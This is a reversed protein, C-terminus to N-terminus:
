MSDTRDYQRQRIPIKVTFVAGGWESTGADLSGGHDTIIRHCISLGIGSSNDKTTYFPDFINAMIQEAIGPGSDSVTICISDGAPRTTIKIKKEATMSAMAESANAILNLIVQEIMHPDSRCPPLNPDLDAEIRIGKKNLTLSSLDVAEKVPLNIETLVFAPEGPRSFDMVRKIVAEIKNSALQLQSLIGTSEEAHETNSCLKNLTKLYINIGSLPNRIEHAIGAAVRGLSTMKDKIRLLQELEKARSIDMLNLLIAEKERHEIRCVRCHLWRFDFAADTDGRRGFRFEIDTRPLCERTFDSITREVRGLDDPHILESNPPILLNVDSGFIREYEPNSYVIRGNQVISICTLSNEVLNRFRRESNELARRDRKREIIKGMRLAAAQLLQAEEKHFVGITDFPREELYGVELLGIAQDDVHIARSLHWDTRCYNKTQYTFDELQIRAWAIEPYQMAEPLMDVGGSLIEELGIKPKEVLKSFSFLYNLENVRKELAADARRHAEERKLRHIGFAVDGAIEDILAREVDDSVLEKPISICLLGYVGGGHMLRVTAVGWGSHAKSLPCVGCAKSPNEVWVMEQRSLAKRICPITEKPSGSTVAAEFDSGIGAEACSEPEGDDNLLIIWAKDYTRSRILERCVAKLMPGLAEERILLRNIKRITRLADNLHEIKSVNMAMRYPEVREL